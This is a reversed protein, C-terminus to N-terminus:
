AGNRGVPLPQARIARPGSSSSGLRCPPPRTPRLRWPLAAAAKGIRAPAARQAQKPPGQGRAQTAPLPPTHAKARGLRPLTRPPRPTRSTARAVGKSVKLDPRINNFLPFHEGSSMCLAMRKTLSAASSPQTSACVVKPHKWASPAKPRGRSMFLATRHNSSAASLPSMSALKLRPTRLSWPWPMGWFLNSAALCKRTAPSPPWSSAMALRAIISTLPSPMGRSM